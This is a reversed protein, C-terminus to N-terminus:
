GLCHIQFAHTVSRQGEHPLCLFRKLLDTPARQSSASLWAAHQGGGRRDSGLTSVVDHEEDTQVFVFVLSTFPTELSSKLRYIQLKEFIKWM